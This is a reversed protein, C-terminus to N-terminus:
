TGVSRQHGLRPHQQRKGRNGVFPTSCLPDAQGQHRDEGRDEQPSLSHTSGCQSLTSNMFQFLTESTKKNRAM